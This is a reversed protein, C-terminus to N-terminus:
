SSTTLAKRINRLETMAELIAIAGVYARATSVLDEEDLKTGLAALL